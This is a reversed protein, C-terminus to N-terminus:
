ATSWCSSRASSAPPCSRVSRRSSSARARRLRDARAAGRHQSRGLMAFSATVGGTTPDTLVSV